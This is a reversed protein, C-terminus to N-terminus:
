RIRELPLELTIPEQKNILSFVITAVMARADSDTNVVVNMLRARPEHNQITDRIFDAVITEQAPSPNEFLQKRLDSGVILGDFFHENRNTLLLNKIAQKVAGENVARLLDKKTPHTAMSNYFDSFYEEQKTIPTQLDKRTVSAM